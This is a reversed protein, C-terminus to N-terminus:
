YPHLCTFSSLVRQSIQLSRRWPSSQERRRLPVFPSFSLCALLVFCSCLDHARCLRPFWNLPLTAVMSYLPASTLKERPDVWPSWWTTHREVLLSSVVPWLLLLVTCPSWDLLPLLLLSYRSWWCCNLPKWGCSSLMGLYCNTTLDSWYLTLLFGSTM